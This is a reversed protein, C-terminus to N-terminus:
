MLWAKGLQKELTDGFCKARVLCYHTCFGASSRVRCTNLIYCPAACDMGRGQVVLGWTRSCGGENNDTAAEDEENDLEEVLIVGDPVSSSKGWRKKVLPWSEPSAPQTELRLVSPGQSFIQVLFPAEGINRM